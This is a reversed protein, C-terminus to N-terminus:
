RHIAASLPVPRSADTNFSSNATCVLALRALLLDVRALDFRDQDDRLKGEMDIWFPAGTAASVIKPFEIKITDPGLGGAYGCAVGPISPPWDQCLVGRGGSADFLVAHNVHERLSYALGANVDNFQTIITKNANRELMFLIASLDFKDSRFNLQVRDFHRAVETVHGAGDIFDRVASGCVHLAFRTNLHGHAKRWECLGNIWEMSPYRGVGQQSSSYLIGWEPRVTFLWSECARTFYSFTDYAIFNDAGTLTCQIM